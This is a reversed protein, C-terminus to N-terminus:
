LFFSFVFYHMALLNSACVSLKNAFFVCQEPQRPSGSLLFQFHFLPLVLGLTEFLVGHLLFLSCLFLFCICVIDVIQHSLLGCQILM